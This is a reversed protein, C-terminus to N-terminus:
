QSGSDRINPKGGFVEQRVTIRKLLAPDIM